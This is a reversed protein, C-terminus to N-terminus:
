DQQQSCRGERQRLRRGSNKAGINSFVAYGAAGAVAAKAKPEAKYLRQLTSQAMTRIEKQKNEITTDAAHAMVALACVLAFILLKQPTAKM